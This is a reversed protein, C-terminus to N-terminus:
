AVAKEFVVSEAEVYMGVSEYLKTAGTPSEADVGLTVRATGRKWFEAFTRYLLAKGLGRGRWARRVGLLGVYGGGNRFADNRVVAAIEDGDRVLFWLPGEADEQQGRRLKWWEEFPLGHWEWHDQFSEIMAAHFAHADVEAFVDLVLPSDLDPVVPEARLEIAMEYFHRVDRYGRARFLVAAADDSAFAWTHIRAVGAAQCAAEGREALKAGLGRGKAGQAVIGVCIGKDGYPQFWGAAVIAGDEEFLWGHQALDVLEWWSLVDGEGLRSPHGLFAAEDANAIAAVAAADRPSLSRANM